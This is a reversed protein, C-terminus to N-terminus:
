IDIDAYEAHSQIFKRRPPVEDGMLITFIQDAEEADDVTIQKLIRVNPDMTTNYLQDPNMEGLGKYRQVIPPTEGVQHEKIIGDREEETHAYWQKKGVAVRYLPPQAIYLHGKDIIDRMHRFFFTLLLTRIHAGDVDADTMIFIKHYRLKTYDVQDAIGMGLAIVLDKIERFNLVKDLYAKESNLIKGRLPLIAQYKRDRGQKASGGASDGEVIFLESKSPDREQCDALKGPLAGGEFAGKRIVADKAALAALRAKQALFIKNLISKAIGPQEEFSQDFFKNMETQVIGQVEPNGLKSKTQGEFQLDNSPMKVYVIATLGERTDEGSLAGAKSNAIENKAYANVSRTLAAKFGTLHTGGEKTNIVNVYSVVNEAVGDNYQLAVELEFNEFQANHYLIDHLPKKNKNMEKLLSKIGGDFYYGVKKDERKDHITFMVKPILYARDKIRKMVSKLQLDTGQLFITEDPKFSIATGTEGTIGLESTPVEKIPGKPAGISYEQRYVKGFRKVEAILHSSLANVCSAGVGHLGGSVKYSDGEFKGGAHLTTLILELTSIKKDPHEEVPIGRGDDVVTLYNNEDLTIHINRAVGALAEDISNDVIEALCHYVGEISTSGIYMAPRKRVPELGELVKISKASYESPNSLAM